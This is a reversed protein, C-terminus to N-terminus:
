SPPRRPRRASHRGCADGEEGGWANCEGAGTVFTFNGSATGAIVKSHDYRCPQGPIPPDADPGTTNYPYDESSMFGNPGFYSFQDQDWGICEVMEQESFNRLAHGAHLAYQGEAAAVRGFTGCYGHAGQDKAPTVAGKTRWDVPDSEAAKVYAKSFPKFPFSPDDGLGGQISRKLAEGRLPRHVPVGDLRLSVSAHTVTALLLTILLTTM